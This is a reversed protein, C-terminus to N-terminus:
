YNEDIIDFVENRRTKYINLSFFCAYSLFLSLVSILIYKNQFTSSYVQISIVGLTCLGESAMKMIDEQERAFNFPTEDFIELFWKLSKKIKNNQYLDVLFDNHVQFSSTKKLFAFLAFYVFGYFFMYSLVMSLIFSIATDNIDLPLDNGTIQKTFYYTTILKVVNIIKDYSLELIKLWGELKEPEPM